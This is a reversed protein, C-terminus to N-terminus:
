IEITLRRALKIDVGQQKKIKLKNIDNKQKIQTKYLVILNTYEM